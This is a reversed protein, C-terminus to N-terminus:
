WAHSDAAAGLRELGGRLSDTPGGLGLRFHAPAGFYRGPVIATHREALLREAFRDIDEIGRIRPFLVTSIGPDFWEIDSRGDLFRRVIARNSTLISMAREHLRDLEAFALTALQETVISGTGDIVDRTRRFREALAASSLTWGCRLAALGYSKTLSSSSIFVDGVRAAPSIRGDAADLYVEDVLVHAGASEALRGIAELEAPSAMAGTPNHPRTIVILRTHSTMSTRVRDPDLRYGSARDREFRVTRAGLLRAAGSLPDYGPQEVLVEDGATLLTAFVQFNAGSTGQATAVQGATVGYRQAIAELLPTYGEENRGSLTLAERAGPLEEISCALVNSNALDFKAAPRKKAWEMYPALTPNMPNMLNM